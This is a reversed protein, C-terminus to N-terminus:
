HPDEADRKVAARSDEAYIDQLWLVFQKNSVHAM